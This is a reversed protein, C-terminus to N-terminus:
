VITIDALNMDLNVNQPQLNILNPNTPHIAGLWGSAQNFPNAVAIAMDNSLFDLFPQYTMFFRNFQLAYPLSVFRNFILNLDKRFKWFLMRHKNFHHTTFTVGVVTNFILLQNLQTFVQQPIPRPPVAYIEAQTYDCIKTMEAMWGWTLRYFMSRYMDRISRRTMEITNDIRGSEDDYDAYLDRIDGLYDRFNTETDLLETWGPKGLFYAVGFFFREYFGLVDRMLGILRSLHRVFNFCIARVSYLTLVDLLEETCEYQRSQRMWAMTALVRDNFVNDTSQDFLETTDENFRDIIATFKLKNQGGNRLWVYLKYYQRIGHPLFFTFPRTMPQNPRPTFNATEHGAPGYFHYFDRFLLELRDDTDLLVDQTTSRFTQEIKLHDFLFEFHEVATEFRLINAALFSIRHDIASRQMLWCFSYLKLTYFANINSRLPQPLGSNAEDQPNVTFKIVPQATYNTVLFRDFTRGIRDAIEKVHDLKLGVQYKKWKAVLKYIAIMM